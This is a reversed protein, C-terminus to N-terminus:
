GSASGLERSLLSVCNADIGAHQFQLLDLFEAMFMCDGRGWFFTGFLKGFPIAGRHLFSHLTAENSSLCSFVCQFNSIVWDLARSYLMDNTNVSVLNTSLAHTSSVSERRRLSIFYLGILLSSLGWCTGPM